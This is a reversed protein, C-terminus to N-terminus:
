NRAYRLLERHLLRRLDALDAPREDGPTAEVALVHPLDPTDAWTEHRELGALVPDDSEGFRRWDLDRFGAAGLAAALLERNWLFRHQWGHFARNAALGMALKADAGADLRYQTAWVWDLNPTTLRLRGDPALAKRAAVLFDLAVDADLHELFHEAFVARAGRFRRLARVADEALDVEPLKQLDVNVWGDLHVHGSGVHVRWPRRAFRIRLRLWPGVFLHKLWGRLPRTRWM